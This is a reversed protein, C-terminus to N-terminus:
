MRQTHNSPLVSNAHLCQESVVTHSELFPGCTNLFSGLPATSSVGVPLFHAPFDISFCCYNLKMPLVTASASRSTPGLVLVVFSALRFGTTAPSSRVLLLFAWKELLFLDFFELLLRRSPPHLCSPISFCSDSRSFNRSLSIM